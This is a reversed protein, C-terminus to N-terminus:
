FGLQVVAGATLMSANDATIDLGLSFDGVVRWRQVLGASVWLTIEEDVVLDRYGIRPATGLGAGWGFQLHYVSGEYISARGIVHAGLLRYNENASVSATAELGIAVRPLIWYGFELRLLPDLFQQPVKSQTFGFAVVGAELALWFRQAEDLAATSDTLTSPSEQESPPAPQASAPKSLGFCV